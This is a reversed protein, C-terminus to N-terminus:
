RDWGTVPAGTGTSAPRRAPFPAIRYPRDARVPGATNLTRVPAMTASHPAGTMVVHVKPVQRRPKRSLRAQIQEPGRTRPM